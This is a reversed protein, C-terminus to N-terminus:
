VLKKLFIRTFTVNDFSSFLNEHKDLLSPLTEVWELDPIQEDKLELWELEGSPALEKNVLKRQLLLCHECHISLWNAQFDEGLEGDEILQVLLKEAKLRSPSCKWYLVEGYRGSNGWGKGIYFVQDASPLKVETVETVETM